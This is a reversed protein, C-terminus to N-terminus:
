RAPLLRALCRLAAPTGPQPRPAFWRALHRASRGGGDHAARALRASKAEIIMAHRHEVALAAAVAPHTYM